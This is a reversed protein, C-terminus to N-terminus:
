RPGGSSSSLFYALDVIVFELVSLEALNVPDYIHSFVAYLLLLIPAFFCITTFIPVKTERSLEASSALGRTEEDGPDYTGPELTALGRFVSAASYSALGMSADGVAEEVSRGLLLMRGAESVTREITADRPRLMIVTRPRSGTVSLVAKASASLLVSERAQTVRQRDLLRRPTSVTLYFILASVALLIAPKAGGISNGLALGMTLWAASSAALGVLGIRWPSLGFHDLSAFNM